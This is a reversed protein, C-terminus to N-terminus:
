GLLEVRTSLDPDHFASRGLVRVGDGVMHKGAIIRLLTTKGAGNAGIVLTRRGAEVRLDVGRLVERQSGRYAFRLGSVEIVSEATTVRARYWWGLAGGHDPSSSSRAATENRAKRGCSAM